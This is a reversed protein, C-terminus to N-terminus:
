CGAPIVSHSRAIFLDIWISYSVYPRLIYMSVFTWALKQHTVINNSQPIILGQQMVTFADHLAVALPRSNADPFVTCCILLCLAQGFLWPIGFNKLKEWAIKESTNALVAYIIAIGACLVFQYLRAYYSRLAAITTMFILLFTALVGGYGKRATATSDSVWLAFAGWGLGSATGIITLVAGEIQAGVTRGPHNIISSLAMICNYRGLWNNVVPILCLIYAIFFAIFSKTLKIGARTTTVQRVVGKMDEWQDLLFSKPSLPQIKQLAAPLCYEAEKMLDERDTKPPKFFFSDFFGDRLEEVGYTQIDELAQDHLTEQLLDDLHSQSISLRPSGPASGGLSLRSRRPSQSYSYSGMYASSARSNPPRALEAPPELHVQKGKHGSDDHDTRRQIRRHLRSINDTATSEQPSNVALRRAEDDNNSNSTIM